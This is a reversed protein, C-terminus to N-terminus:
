SQSTSPRGAAQNVELANSESGPSTLRQRFWDVTKQVAEDLTGAEEFLHTAGEIVAMECFLSQSVGVRVDELLPDYSGIVVLSRVPLRRFQDSDAPPARLVMTAPRVKREIAAEMAVVAGLSSGAIGIRFPDIEPQNLMWGWVAELDDIYADTGEREDGSSDGHGSLDFLVSGVGADVLAEAIAVNRPSDKGSGLGHVFVVTPFPGTGPPLDLRGALRVSRRRVTFERSPDATVLPAFGRLIERVEEDEVAEFDEYFQGVAWFNDEISLCVVEDAERRLVEITAPPGVPVALIVRAAGQAKVSRVSAIATAGTAVGDDVVVVTRGKLSPRRHADFLDERRAAERAQRAREQALYGDDAGVLRAAEADLYYVGDATTAGIALEPNGPAGLKHAVIAALEGGTTRAVEAALPIGGRPIGLVVPRELKMGAIAEALRKGADTRDRFRM